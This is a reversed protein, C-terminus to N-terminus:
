STSAVGTISSVPIKLKGVSVVTEGNVTQVATAIGSTHSAANIAEGGPGTATIKLTYPGGDPLQQGATTVGDWDLTHAGGAVSNDTRSWVTVGQANAVDYKVSTANRDLDYSWNAAGNTITAQDTNATVTKGILNVAGSLGGDSMGVLTKLLDNTMLQQEVGTMQVIQATFQNSDLPSLPDQNKLQTTLLSLFTQESDALRSRSSNLKSTVSSGAAAATPDVTSTM